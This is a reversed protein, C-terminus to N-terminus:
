RTMEVGSYKNIVDIMRIYYLLVQRYMKEIDATLVYKYTRFRILYAVLKDQITPGVMLIDNLSTSNNTKASADFVIRVKTTNSTDKIVAHHPMYYGDDGPNTILSM